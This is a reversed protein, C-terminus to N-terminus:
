GFSTTDVTTFCCNPNNNSDLKLDYRDNNEKKEDFGRGKINTSLLFVLLVMSILIGHTVSLTTLFSSILTLEIQLAFPFLIKIEIKGSVM